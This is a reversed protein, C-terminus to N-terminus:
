PRDAIQKGYDSPTAGMVLSLEGGKMIDSYDIYSKTYPKGNLTASQIYINERSNNKASVTFTRNDPLEITASNYLPSGIIFRGGTPEVQYLGMSSLVYWASMQGVDENGCLGDPADNYLDTLIRRLVPAAKYPKGIYNYLYVVHHSPENGHAYQGILGTIDPSADDGLVGNVIFLSDLKAEFAEESGFLDILGHPDHPVLWVYQWANGECYDDARHTTAFPNFEGARFNGNKDKGRMFNVSKDFYQSYAKSRKEFLSDPNGAYRSAVAIANDAIAYELGKAVSEECDKEDFPIYGYRKLVGLSREDLLASTKMAELASPVDDVFGKTILDGLVIVGPNGIMCDTENGHLHWVPLKGQSKYIDMFTSAFDSQMEPFLLTYMPHAARYTDWLSFVSYRTEDANADSFTVPATMTHFLSTYLVRKDRENDTEVKVRALERNWRDTAADKVADFDFGAVEAALNAKANEISNVSLGVKVILPESSPSFTCVALTDSITAHEIPRSFQATFYIKQDKAWGTSYRYGCVASDGEQVISTETPKDWGIGYNLNIKVYATDTPEFTYRHIGAHTTASLEVDVGADDLRVSYYGPRATEDKHDFSVQELDRNVTPLILIDGLDGIGTGSLHTHSFGLLLSDSYHYGSCWDWGKVKQSPGLQVLGFPMNAGLFVHGHGGTGIFPDVYDVLSNNDTDTAVQKTSCSASVLSMMVAGIYIQKKM